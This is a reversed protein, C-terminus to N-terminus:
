QFIERADHLLYLSGCVLIVDEPNALELAIRCATQIHENWHVEKAHGVAERAVDQANLARPINSQTGIFVSSRDAINHICYDTDKDACMGMVTILRRGALYTDIAKAVADSGNPNHGGDLIVLPRKHIIELRGPFRTAAVGEIIQENSVNWGKAQLRQAITVATLTNQIQHDGTMNIRLLLNQYDLLTGTFDAKLLDIESKEPIFLPVNKRACDARIVELAEPTQDFCTVCDCGTKVIGCKDQAIEAVTNGLVKMHDLAVPTLAAVEPPNIINTCDLRGGMGVELAVIDCHSDAFFNFALATVIEFETPHTHGDEKIAEIAPLLKEVQRILEDKSIMEGNVQMRERFDDVYPSIFLGVKYGAKRLINSVMTTTSGKGNTGTIHVFRLKDQPNGCAGMLARIRSLGPKTGFKLTSHIYDLSEQYNM